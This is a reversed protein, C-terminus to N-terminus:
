QLRALLDGLDIGAELLSEALFQFFEEDPMEAYGTLLAHQKCAIRHVLENCRRLRPPDDVQETLPQYTDRAFMSVLCLLRSLWAAKESDLFASFKVLENSWKITM